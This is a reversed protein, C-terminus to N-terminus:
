METVEPHINEYNIKHIVEFIKDFFKIILIHDSDNKSISNVIEFLLSVIQDEDYEIFFENFINM